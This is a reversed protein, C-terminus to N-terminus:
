LKKRSLQYALSLSEKSGSDFHNSNKDEKIYNIGLNNFTSEDFIVVGDNEM